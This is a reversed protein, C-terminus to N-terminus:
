SRSVLAKLLALAQPDDLNLHPGLPSGLFIFEGAGLPVRGAVALRDITAFAQQPSLVPILRSFDRVVLPEPWGYHVYPAFDCRASQSWLDVPTDVRVGFQQQLLDRESAFDQAYAAGSEYLVMAGRHALNRLMAAVRPSRLVGGPVLVVRTLWSAGPSISDGLQEVPSLQFSVNSMTLGRAFGNLSEPLACDTGLDVLVCTPVAESSRSPRAIWRGSALAGPLACAAVELFRRRSVTRLAKGPM